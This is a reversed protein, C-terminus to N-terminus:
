HMRGDLGLSKVGTLSARGRDVGANGGFHVVEPKIIYSPGRGVRTFPSPNDVDALDGASKKHAISGVVISRVSDAGQHLRGKPHGSIFNSCNGASKCILINHKDQIADLAVAFDSFDTEDIPM